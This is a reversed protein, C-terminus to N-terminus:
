FEPLPENMALSRIFEEVQERCIIGDLPLAFVTKKMRAHETDEPEMMDVDVVTMQVPGTAYADIVAGSKVKLIIQESM